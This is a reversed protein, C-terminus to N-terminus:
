SAARARGRAARRAPRQRGARAVAPEASRLALLVGPDLVGRARAAGGGRRRRPRRRRPAADLLEARQAGSAEEMTTPISHTVFVLPASSALTPLDARDAAGARHVGRRRRRRQGAVFGPHNFYHACSTSSSRGRRRRRGDAHECRARRAGRRPERPVPPLRLVVGYASTVVALVRAPAPTACSPSRRPRTRSGTATAGRSRAPRRRPARARGALAAMLALNQENIPSRGGFHYYHEGVEVLRAEPINKGARSTGSSRCCTTPSTRAWRLLVAAPRRLPPADDARLLSM